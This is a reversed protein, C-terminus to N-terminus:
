GVLATEQSPEIWRGGVLRMERECGSRLPGDGHDCREAIGAEDAGLRPEQVHDLQEALEVHAGVRINLIPQGIKPASAVRDIVLDAARELTIDSHKIVPCDHLPELLESSEGSLEERVETGDLLVKPTEVTRDAFADGLPGPRLGVQEVVHEARSVGDCRGVLTRAESREPFKEHRGGSLVFQRPPELADHGQRGDDFQPGVAAQATNVVVPEPGTLLRM